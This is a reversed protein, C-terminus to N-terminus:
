AAVLADSLAESDVELVEWAGDLAISLGHEGFLAEAAINLLDAPPAVNYAAHESSVNVLFEVDVFVHIEREGQADDESVCVKNLNVFGRPFQSKFAQNFAAVAEVSLAQDNPRTDTFGTDMFKILMHPM